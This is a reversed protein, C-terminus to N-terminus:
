NACFEAYTARHDSGNDPLVQFSRVGVNDKVMIQDLPWGIPLTWSPFTAYTGRGIRPDLWGGKERFATTTRSWPVDNFDGMVIGGALEGEGEDSANMISQDRKNTDQGPLPAKPHLGIFEVLNGDGVKLVATFTPTDENPREIVDTEILPLRSAFVKGFTNSQPHTRVQPYRDLLPRLANVWITDTETLFLVDPDFSEVQAILAQHRPNEMKVNASLVTFCKAPDADAVMEVEEPAMELYPWIRTINTAIAAGLVVALVLRRKPYVALGVVLLAMLTYTAPELVMDLTRILWWNAPILSILSACLALLAIAVLIARGVRKSKDM